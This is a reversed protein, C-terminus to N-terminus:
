WAGSAQLIHKRLWYATALSMYSEFVPEGSYLDMECPEHPKSEGPCSRPEFRTKKKSCMMEFQVTEADSIPGVLIHSM